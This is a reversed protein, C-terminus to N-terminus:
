QLLRRVVVMLFLITDKNVNIVNLIVQTFKVSNLSQLLTLTVLEMKFYIIDEMVLLVSITLVEQQVIKM